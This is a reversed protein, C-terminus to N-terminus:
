AQILIAIKLAVDAHIPNALVELNVPEDALGEVTWGWFAVLRGVVVTNPGIALLGVQSPCGWRLVSGISIPMPISAPTLGVM